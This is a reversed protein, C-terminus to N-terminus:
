CFLNVNNNKNLVIVIKGNVLIIPNLVNIMVFYPIRFNHQMIM